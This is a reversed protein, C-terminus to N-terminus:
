AHTPESNFRDITFPKISTPVHNTLIYESVAYATIPTLIIGIHFHGTAMTLGEVSTPGLIPADDSSRPRLGIWTEVVPLGAVGPFTEYVQQLLELLGGATIETDFGVDEFTAGIVMREENRPIYYQHTRFVIHSLLPNRRDLKVAMLQGKAPRVPPCVEQPLGYISGSWAGAAVVVQEDPILKRRVIAGRVRNGGIEVADVPSRERIEGGARLFAERLAALVSRPDVQGENPSYTAALLKPSLHPELSLAEEPSKWDM